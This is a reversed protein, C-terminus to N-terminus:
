EGYHTRARKIYVTKKEEDISYVIRDKFNLRVSYNGELDGLLKKGEYPDISIVNLLIDKFKKKMKATLKKIDKLATKTIQIRYM